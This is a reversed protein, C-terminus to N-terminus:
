LLILFKLVFQWWHVFLTGGSELKSFLWHQFPVEPFVSQMRLSSIDPVLGGPDDEVKCGCIGCRRAEPRHM